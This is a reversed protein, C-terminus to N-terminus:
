LGLDEGVLVVNIRGKNFNICGDIIVTYRCIRMEHNCDVCVGTKACPLDGFEEIHHKLYHRRANMPAAVNHIRDLAENVDKVLKNVGTVVIVKDPGYIMPAVRNGVGDINVLKGDLTVANTGVLFVDASFAERAVKLREEPDSFIFFGEGDRELSYTISNRDRKQLEDIIGIEDLSISDGRAVTAGPPIMEMIVPLAEARSPVYQANINKKQFNKIATRAREENFWAKERTIDTEDLM